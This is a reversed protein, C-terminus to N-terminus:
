KKKHNVFRSFIRIKYNFFYEGIFSGKKIPRYILGWIFVFFVIMFITVFINYESPNNVLKGIVKYFLLIFYFILLAKFPWRISLKQEKLPKKNNKM